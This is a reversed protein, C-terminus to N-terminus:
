YSPATASVRNAYFNAACALFPKGDWDVRSRTDEHCSVLPQLTLHCLVPHEELTQSRIGELSDLSTQISLKLVKSASEVSRWIDEVELALKIMDLGHWSSEWNDSSLATKADLCLIDGITAVISRVVRVYEGLGSVMTSISSRVQAREEKRLAKAEHLLVLGMALEDRANSIMTTWDSSILKSHSSTLMSVISHCRKARNLSRTAGFSSAWNNNALSKDMSATILGQFPQPLHPELVRVQNRVEDLSGLSGGAEVPRSVTPADQFADWDGFDDDFETDTRQNNSSPDQSIAHQRDETEHNTVFEAFIVERPKTASAFDEFQDAINESISLPASLPAFDNKMSNEFLDASQTSATALEGFDAEAADDHDSPVQVHEFDGWDDDYDDVDLQKNNQEDNHDDIDLRDKNQDVNYDIPLQASDETCAKAVQHISEGGASESPPATVEQLILTEEEAVLSDVGEFEGFNDDIEAYSNGEMGAMSSLASGNTNQMMLDVERKQSDPSPAQSDIPTASGVPTEFDCFEDVDIATALEGISPPQVARVRDASSLDGTPTRFIDRPEEYEDQIRQDQSGFSFSSLPALDVDSVGSNIADFASFPDDDQEAVDPLLNEQITEEKHELSIEENHGVPVNWASLKEEEQASDNENSAGIISAHPNHGATNVIEDGAEFEGFEKDGPEDNQNSPLSQVLAGIYLSLFEATTPTETNVTPVVGESALSDRVTSMPGLSPLPIDQVQQFAGFASSFADEGSPHSNSDGTPSINKSSGFDGFEDEEVPANEKSPIDQVQNSADSVSSFPDEEQSLANSDGNPTVNESSEFDGFEGEEVPGNVVSPLPLDHVLQIADFACSFPDDVSSSSNIVGITAVNESSEFAGFEGEEVPPEVVSEGPTVVFDSTEFHGFEDETPNTLSPLSEGKAQSIEDLTSSFSEPIPIGIPITHEGTEFDGFEDDGADEPLRLPSGRIDTGEGDNDDGYKASSLPEIIPESVPAPELESEANENAEFGELTADKDVATAHVLFSLPRDQIPELADFASSLPDDLVTQQSSTLPISELKESDLLTAEGTVTTAKASDQALGKGVKFDGFDDDEVKLYNSTEASVSKMDVRGFETAENGDGSNEEVQTFEGFDQEQEPPVVPQGEFDGFDDDDIELAPAQLTPLPQDEVPILDGFADSVSLQKTPSQLLIQDEPPYRELLYQANPLVLNVFSALGVQRHILQGEVQSIDLWKKQALSVMKLLSMFQILEMLSGEGEPDVVNWIERLLKRDVGSSSLFPVASQGPLHFPELPVQLVTELVYLAYAREIPTPHYNTSFSTM